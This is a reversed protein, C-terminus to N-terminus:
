NQCIYLIDTNVMNLMNLLDVQGVDTSYHGTCQLLKDLVCNSFAVSPTLVIYRSARMMDTSALCKGIDESTHSICLEFAQTMLTPM